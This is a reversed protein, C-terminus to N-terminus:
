IRRLRKEELVLRIIISEIKRQTAENPRRFQCALHWCHMGSEEGTVTQIKSGHIVSLDAILRGAEGFDLEANRLTTGPLTRTREGDADATVLACGGQSLDKIDFQYNLGDNFKGWCHYHGRTNLSIRQHARRQIVLLKQPYPIYIQRREGFTIGEYAETLFEYKASNDLLRVTISGVPLKTAKNWSLYVGGADLKSIRSFTHNNFTRVEVLSGKKYADRIIAMIEYLGQRLYPKHM